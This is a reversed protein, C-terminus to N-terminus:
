TMTVRNIRGSRSVPDGHGLGREGDDIDGLDPGHQGEVLLHEAARQIVAKRVVTLRHVQGDPDTRSLDSEPQTGTTEGDGSPVTSAAACLEHPLAGSSRASATASGPEPQRGSECILGSGTATVPAQALRVHVDSPSSM